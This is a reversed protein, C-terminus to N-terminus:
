SHPHGVNDGGCKRRHVPAQPRDGTRSVVINQPKIDRHIIGHQHSEALADAVQKGIHLALHLDMPGRALRAKLTEGEIYEMAIFITGDSDGVEYITSINPHNLSAAAHAEQLFRSRRQTDTSVDGPMVKLAVDRRLKTDEALYVDGMGGSGLKQKIRYHSISDM